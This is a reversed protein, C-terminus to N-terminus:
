GASTSSWRTAKGIATRHEWGRIWPARKSNAWTSWAIPLRMNTRSRSIESSQIIQFPFPMYNARPIGPMYCKIEPDLKMRNQLNEKQKAAAAPTYPIEGGDVIGQGRAYRRYRWSFSREPRHATIRSIGIRRAWLRGCVRSTRNATPCARSRLLPEPRLRAAAQYRASFFLSGASLLIWTRRRYPM